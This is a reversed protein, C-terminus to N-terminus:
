GHACQSSQSVESLQICPLAPSLAPVQPVPEECRGGLSAPSQQLRPPGAPPMHQPSTAETQGGTPSSLVALQGSLIRPLPCSDRDALKCDTQHGEGLTDQFAFRMASM